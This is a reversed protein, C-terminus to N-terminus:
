SWRLHQSAQGGGFRGAYGRPTVSRSANALWNVGRRRAEAHVTEREFYVRKTFNPMMPFPRAAHAKAEVQRRMPQGMVPMAVLFASITSSNALVLSRRRTATLWRAMSSTTALIGSVFAMM